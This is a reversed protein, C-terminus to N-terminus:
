KCMNLLLNIERNNEFRNFTAFKKAKLYKDKLDVGFQRMTFLALVLVHLLSICGFAM